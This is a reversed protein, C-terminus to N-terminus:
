LPSIYVYVVASYILTLAWTKQSPWLFQCFRWRWSTMSADIQCYTTATLNITLIKDINTAKKSFMFKLICCLLWSPASILWYLKHGINITLYLYFFIIFDECNIQCKSCLTFNITFIEDIKTAKKSFMFKFFFNSYAKTSFYM